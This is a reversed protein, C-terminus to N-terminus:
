RGLVRELGRARTALGGTLERVQALEARLQPDGAEVPLMSDQLAGIVQGAQGAADVGRQILSKAGQSALGPSRPEFSRPPLGHRAAFEAHTRQARGYALQVPAFLEEELRDAGHEDLQEYAESLCALALALEEVAQAIADLIQRRADVTTYAM